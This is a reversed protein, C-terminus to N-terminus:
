VDETYCIGHQTNPTSTYPFSEVSGKKKKLGPLCPSLHELLGPFVLQPNSRTQENSGLASGPVYTSLSYKIFSHIFQIPFRGSLNGKEKEGPTLRAWFTRAQLHSHHTQKPTINQDVIPMWLANIWFHVNWVKM